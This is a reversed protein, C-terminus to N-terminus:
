ISSLQKGICVPPTGMWHGLGDCTLIPDGSIIVMSPACMFLAQDNHGRGTIDVSLGTPLDTIEACLIESIISEAHAGTHLTFLVKAHPFSTVGPETIAIFLQPDMLLTDLRVSLLFRSGMSTHDMSQQLPYKTSSMASYNQM